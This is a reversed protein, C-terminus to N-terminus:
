KFPNSGTNGPDLTLLIPQIWYKWSESNKFHTIELIELIWLEWFQNKETNGPHLTILISQKGIIHFIEPEIYSFIIWLKFVWMNSSVEFFLNYYRGNGRAWIGDSRDGELPRNNESAVCKKNTWSSLDHQSLNSSHVKSFQTVHYVSFSWEQNCKARTQLQAVPTVLNFFVVGRGRIDKITMAQYKFQWFM